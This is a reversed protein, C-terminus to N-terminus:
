MAASIRKKHQMILVPNLNLCYVIQAHYNYMKQIIWLLRISDMAKWLRHRKKLDRRYRVFDHLFQYFLQSDQRKNGRWIQKHAQQLAHDNLAQDTARRLPRTKEAMRLKYWIGELALEGCLGQYFFYPKILKAYHEYLAPTEYAALIHPILDVQELYQEIIKLGRQQMKLHM